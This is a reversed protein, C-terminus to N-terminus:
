KPLPVLTELATALDFDKRTIGGASHTQISLRITTYRMHIDPHHQQEEAIKAVRGIFAIGDVFSDFKFTKTIFDDERKWGKLGRLRLKVESEALLERM